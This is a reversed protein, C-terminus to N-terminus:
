TKGGLKTWFSRPAPSTTMGVYMPSEDSGEGHAPHDGEENCERLEPWEYAPTMTEQRVHVTTIKSEHHHPSAVLGLCLCCYCCPNM